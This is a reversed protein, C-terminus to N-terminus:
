AVVRVGAGPADVVIESAVLRVGAAVFVVRALVAVDVDVVAKIDVKVVAVSVVVDADVDDAVINVAVVVVGPAVVNVKSAVVVVGPAVVV